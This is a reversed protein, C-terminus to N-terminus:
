NVLFIHNGDEKSDTNTQMINIERILVAVFLLLGQGAGIAAIIAPFQKMPQWKKKLM